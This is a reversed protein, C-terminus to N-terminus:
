LEPSPPFFDREDESGVVFDQEDESESSSDSLSRISSFSSSSSSSSSPSPPDFYNMLNRQASQRRRERQREIEPTRPPSEPSEPPPSPTQPPFPNFAAVDIGREAQRQRLEEVSMFGGTQENFLEFDDDSGVLTVPSDLGALLEGTDGEGEGASLDSAPSRAYVGGDIPQDLAEAVQEPPRVIWGDDEDDGDNDEEEEDSDSGLDEEEFIPVGGPRNADVVVAALDMVADARRLRAIPSQNDARSARQLHDLTRQDADNADMLANFRARHRALNAELDLPRLELNEGREQMDNLTATGQDMIFRRREEPTDFRGNLAEEADAIPRGLEMARRNFTWQREVRAVAEPGGKRLAEERDRQFAALEREEQRVIEGEERIYERRQEVLTQLMRIRENRTAQLSLEALQHTSRVIRPRRALEIRRQLTSARAMLNGLEAMNRGYEVGHEGLGLDEARRTAILDNLVATGRQMILQHRALRSMWGREEVPQEQEEREVISRGIVEARREYRRRLDRYPALAEEVVRIQQRVSILEQQDRVLQPSPTDPSPESPRPRKRGTSSGGGDGGDDGGDDGDVSGPAAPRPFANGDEAMFTVTMKEYIHPNRMIDRMAREYDEQVHDLYQSAVIQPVIKFIQDFSVTGIVDPAWWGSRYRVQAMLNLCFQRFKHAKNAPISQSYVSAALSIMSRLKRKFSLSLGFALEIQALCGDKLAPMDPYVRQLENLAKLMEEERSLQGPRSIVENRGRELQQMMDKTVRVAWAFLGPPGQVAAYGMMNTWFTTPDVLAVGPLAMPAAVTLPPIMAGHEMAHFMALRWRNEWSHQGAKTKALIAGSYIASLGYVPYNHRVGNSSASIPVTLQENIDWRRTQMLAEFIKPHFRYLATALIGFNAFQPRYAARSKVEPSVAFVEGQLGRKTVPDELSLLWKVGQVNQLHIEDALKCLLYNYDTQLLRLKQDLGIGADSLAKLMLYASREILTLYLDKPVTIQSYYNFLAVLIPARKKELEKNTRELGAYFWHFPQKQRMGGFRQDWQENDDTVYRAGAIWPYRQELGMLVTAIEQNEKIGFDIWQLLPANIEDQPEDEDDAIYLPDFTQVVLKLIEASNCTEDTCAGIISYFEARIMAGRQRFDATSKQNPDLLLRLKEVKAEQQEKVREPTGGSIGSRLVARIVEVLKKMGVKNRGKKPPVVYMYPRYYGLILKFIAPSCFEAAEEVMDRKAGRPTKSVTQFRMAKRKILEEIITPKNGTMAYVLAGRGRSDEANINGRHKTLEKLMGVDGYRCALLIPPLAEPFNPNAKHALLTTVMWKHKTRCAASLPSIVPGIETDWDVNHQNFLDIFQRMRNKMLSRSAEPLFLFWQFTRIMGYTLKDRDLFEGSAFLMTSAADFDGESCALTFACDPQFFQPNAEELQRYHEMHVAHQGEDGVKQSRPDAEAETMWSFLYRIRDGSISVFNRPGEYPLYISAKCQILTKVVLLRVDPDDVVIKSDACFEYLLNTNDTTYPPKTGPFGRTQEFIIKWCIVKQQWNPEPSEFVLRYFTVGEGVKSGLPITRPARERRKAEKLLYQVMEPNCQHLAHGLVTYGLEEEDELPFPAAGDDAERKLIDWQKKSAYGALRRRGAKRKAQRVEAVLDGKVPIEDESFDADTSDGEDDGDDEYEYGEDM